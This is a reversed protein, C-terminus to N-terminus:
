TILSDLGCEPDAAMEPRVEAHHFQGDRQVAGEVRGLVLQEEVHAM